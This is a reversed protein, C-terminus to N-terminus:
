NRNIRKLIIGGDVGVVRVKLDTNCSNEIQTGHFVATGCDVKLQDALV